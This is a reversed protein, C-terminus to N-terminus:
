GKSVTWRRLDDVDVTSRAGRCRLGSTSNSVETDWDAAEGPVRSHEVCSLRRGDIYLLQAYLTLDPVSRDIKLPAINIERASARKGTWVLVRPQLCAIYCSSARRLITSRIQPAAPRCSSVIIAHRCSPMAIYRCGMVDRVPKAGGGPGFHAGGTWFWRRECRCVVFVDPFTAVNSPTFRWVAVFLGVCKEEQLSEQCNTTLSMRLNWIYM